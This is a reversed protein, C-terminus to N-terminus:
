LIRLFYNGGKVCDTNDEKGAEAHEIIEVFNDPFLGRKGNIEGEWWGDDKKIVNEIIKGKEITLEDNEEALRDDCVRASVTLYSLFINLREKVPPPPPPLPRALPKRRSSEFFYILLVLGQLIM